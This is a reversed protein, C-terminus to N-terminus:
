EVVESLENILDEAVEYSVVIEVVCVGGDLLRIRVPADDGPDRLVEFTANPRNIIETNM